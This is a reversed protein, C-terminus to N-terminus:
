QSRTTACPEACRSLQSATLPGRHLSAFKFSTTNGTARPALGKIAHKAHDSSAKLQSFGGGVAIWNRLLQDLCPLTSSRHRCMDPQGSRALYLTNLAISIPLSNFRPSIRYGGSINMITTGLSSSYMHMDLLPMHRLCDMMFISGWIDKMYMCSYSPRWSPTGCLCWHDKSGM